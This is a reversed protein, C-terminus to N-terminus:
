PSGAIVDGVELPKDEIDWMPTFISAPTDANVLTVIGVGAEPDLYM